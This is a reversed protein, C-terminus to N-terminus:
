RRANPFARRHASRTLCLLGHAAELFGLALALRALQLLAASLIAYGVRAFGDRKPAPPTVM